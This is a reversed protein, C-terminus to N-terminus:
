DADFSTTRPVELTVFAGGARREEETERRGVGNRDRGLSIGMELRRERGTRLRREAWDEASGNRLETTHM